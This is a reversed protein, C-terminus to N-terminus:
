SQKKKKKAVKFRHMNQAAAKHVIRVDLDLRYKRETSKSPRVIVEPNRGVHEAEEQARDKMLGGWEQPQVADLQHAKTYM